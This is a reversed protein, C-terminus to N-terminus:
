EHFLGSTARLAVADEAVNQTSKGLYQRTTLASVIDYVVKMTYPEKSVEAVNEIIDIQEESM